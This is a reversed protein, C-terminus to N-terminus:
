IEMITAIIITSNEKMHQNHSKGILNIQKTCTWVCKLTNRRRGYSKYDRIDCNIVHNQTNNCVFKNLADDTTVAATFATVTAASYNHMWCMYLSCMEERKYIRETTEM